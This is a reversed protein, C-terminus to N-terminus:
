TPDTAIAIITDNQDISNLLASYSKDFQPESLPRMYEHGGPQQKWLWYLHNALNYRQYGKIFINTFGAESLFCQLSERTHLMLHESWLTFDIFSRLNLTEILFDRAHPVEVIVHGNPKLKKRLSQLTGIPDTLHELVHFVTIVDFENDELNEISNVARYGREVLYEIVDARIDLGCVSKSIPRALQLFKGFECGFDLVSRDRLYEEFDKIRRLSDGNVPPKEYTQGILVQGQDTNIEQYYKDDRVINNLFIIRSRPCRWVKLDELDRTRTNLIELSTPNILGLSSLLDKMNGIRKSRNHTSM